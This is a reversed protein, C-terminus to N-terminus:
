GSGAQQARRAKGSATMGKGGAAILVQSRTLHARRNKSIRKANTRRAGVMAGHACTGNRQAWTITGKKGRAHVTFSFPSWLM